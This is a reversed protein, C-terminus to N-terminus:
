VDGPAPGFDRAIPGDMIVHGSADRGGLRVFQPLITQNESYYVSLDHQGDTIRELPTDYLVGWQLVTNTAANGPALADEQFHSVVGVTFSLTRDLVSMNEIVRADTTRSDGFPGPIPDGTKPPIALNAPSHYINFVLPNGAPFNFEDMWRVPGNHLFEVGALAQHHTPGLDFEGAFDIALYKTDLGKNFSFFRSPVDGNPLVTTPEIM